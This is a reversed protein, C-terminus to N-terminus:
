RHLCAYAQILRRSAKPFFRDAAYNEKATACSLWFYATNPDVVLRAPSFNPALLVSLYPTTSRWALQKLRGDEIRTTSVFQVDGLTIDSDSGTALTRVAARYEYWASVFRVTEVSHVLVLIGLAGVIVRPPVSRALLKTLNEASELRGKLEGGASLAYWAALVGILPTGIIVVTRLYYRNQALVNPDTLNWYFVLIGIVVLGAWVHADWPRHLWLLFSMAAYGSLSALILLLVRNTLLVPDFVKLAARTLVPAFYDDPPFLFRVLVVLTLAVAFAGLARILLPNSLGRLTLTGLICVILILAGEHTFALAAMAATVLLSGAYGVRAYHCAALTPWFLSHAVWMETPFGFVLPCLSVTSVSAYALLIRGRSRDLLFTGILGLLPASFHLLGYVTIGGQPDGTWAVYAEAPLCSYLYSFLRVSINHWHFAWSGRTAIAYSFMSGDGYMQLGAAVGIIVFAISSCLGACIALVRVKAWTDGLGPSRQADEPVSVRTETSNQM